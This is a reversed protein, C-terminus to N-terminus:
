LVEVPFTVEVDTEGVAEDTSKNIGDYHKLVVKLSGNGSTSTTIKLQLGVPLNNNDKDLKEITLKGSVGEQATYFFQHVDAEKEVENSITDVPTKSEDLLLMKGTYTKGAQLSIGTIVPQLPGDGDADKWTAQATNSTGEEVLVLKATTIIEQPNSPVVPNTPDNKDCSIFFCTASFIISLNIIKNKM